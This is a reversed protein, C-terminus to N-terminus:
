NYYLKTKQYGFLGLHSRLKSLCACLNTINIKSNNSSWAFQGWKM